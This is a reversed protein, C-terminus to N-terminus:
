SRKQTKGRVAAARNWAQTWHRRPRATRQRAFEKEWRSCFFRKLGYSFFFGISSIHNRFENIQETLKNKQKTYENSWIDEYRKKNNQHQQRQQIKKNEKQMIQKLFLWFSARMKPDATVCQSIYFKQWLLFNDFFTCFFVFKFSLICWKKYAKFEFALVSFPWIQHHPSRQM